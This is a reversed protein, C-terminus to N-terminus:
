LNLGDASPATEKPVKGLLYAAAETFGADRAAGAAARTRKPTFFGPHGDLLSLGAVDGHRAFADVLRKKHPTADLDMTSVLAHLAAAGLEEWADRSARLVERAVPGFSADHGALVAAGDGDLCRLWGPGMNRALGDVIVHSTRALGLLAGAAASTLRPPQDHRADLLWSAFAQPDAAGARVCDAAECVVPARASEELQGYCGGWGGESAWLAFCPYADLLVSDGSALMCAAACAGSADSPSGAELATVAERVVERLAAERGPAAPASQSAARSFARALVGAGAAAPVRTPLSAPRAGTLEWPDAGWGEVCAKRAARPSLGVLCHAVDEGCVPSAPAGELGLRGLAWAVMASLDPGAGDPLDAYDFGVSGYVGGEPDLGLAHMRVAEARRGPMRRVGLVVPAGPGADVVYTAERGSVAQAAALRERACAAEAADEVALALLAEAARLASGADDCPEEARGAPGEAWATWAGGEGAFGFSVAEPELDSGFRGVGDAYSGGSPDGALRGRCRAFAREAADQWDESVFLRAM